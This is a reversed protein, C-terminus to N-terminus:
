RVVALAAQDRGDEKIDAGEDGNVKNGGTVPDAAFVLLRVDADGLIDDDENRQGDEHEVQQPAIGHSDRICMESGM